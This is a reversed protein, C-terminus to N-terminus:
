RELSDSVLSVDKHSFLREIELSPFHEILIKLLTIVKHTRPVIHPILSARKANKLENASTVYGNATLLEAVETYTKVYTLGWCEQAYARLFVRRLIDSSGKKTINMGIRKAVLKTAYYDEWDYWDDLTKLNSSRRFGDFIARCRLFDDLTNWPKSDFALHQSDRAPMMCPNIPKRKLDYELNVRRPQSKSVLDSELLWQEALSILYNSQMPPDDFNRSLYFDIMWENQKTAIDVKTDSSDIAINPKVGAKALVPPYEKNSGCSSYAKLTLQGRTRMGLIQNARHKEELMNGGGLKNCLSQYRRCLPQDLNLDEISAESLFGDTTASVVLMNEPISNLLEALVARVFGTTHAAIFENTISSEAIQTHKGTATDFATKKKLGQATKGYLTNGIDKWTKDKSVSGEKKAQNREKKVREVFPQFVRVETTLWPAIVGHIITIKCGLNCAALIEPATCYSEGSLPFILGKDGASVPLCPFRTNQPFKFKVHAYGAVHRLYDQVKTSTYIGDYDIPHLDCLGTTYAGSLDLDYFTSEHTPGTYYAENRGGFYCLKVFDKHNAKRPLSRKKTRTQIKGKAQNWYEEKTQEIGLIHNFSILEPHQSVLEIVTQRFAAVSMAGITPPLSKLGLENRAFEQQYIGFRCAIEADRMGYREFAPKDDNLLGKINEISYGKPIPLKPLGILEGAIALGGRGPTHLLTDLFRVLVRYTHRNKDTLCIPNARFKKSKEDDITLEYPEKVNVVTGGVGTLKKKMKFFNKMSALDARIFHAYIFIMSPLKDITGEELAQMVVISLLQELSKRHKYEGSKPYIICKTVKGNCYAYLQYSLVENQYSASNSSSGAVERSVFESDFGIHLIPGDAQKILKPDNCQSLLEQIQLKLEKEFDLTIQQQEINLEPSLLDPQDATNYKKNM